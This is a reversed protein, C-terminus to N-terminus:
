GLRANIWVGIDKIEDLDVGHELPYTHYEVPYGMETLHSFSAAGFSEPVMPDAKGHGIFAPLDANASSLAVTNRTAFYTSLAILGALREPYSLALEFAVAGGQSFGAIIIRSSEVGRENERKILSVVADASARLQAEDIQRELNMELIDYWAPMEVGNNITVPISPAHPFAFRVALDEAIGLHPVVPEFDHGNAGLGHLWIVSATATNKPEIEVCDLLKIGDESM